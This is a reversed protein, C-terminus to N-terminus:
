NRNRRRARSATRAEGSPLTGASLVVRLPHQYWLALGELLTVV